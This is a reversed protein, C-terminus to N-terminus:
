SPLQLKDHLPIEGAKLPLEPDYIAIANKRALYSQGYNFLLRGDSQRAVRGAVVPQTAHPLWIWVYAEEYRHDSIM